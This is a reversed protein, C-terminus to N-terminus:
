EISIEGWVEEGLMGEVIVGRRCPKTQGGQERSPNSGGAEYM